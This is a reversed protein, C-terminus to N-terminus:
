DAFAPPRLYGGIVESLLTAFGIPTRDELYPGIAQLGIPLGGRTLGVPFATAPQGAFSAVAPYVSLLFYDVQHSGVDITHRITARLPPFPAPGHTFAPCLTVPALLLDWDRFFARYSARTREREAHLVILDGAGARSGQACALSYVDGKEEFGRARAERDAESLRASMLAYMMQCFLIQHAGLDALREPCATGVRAGAATLAAIVGGQAAQVEDDIPLWPQPPLVAVRFDALRAHRAPPIHLRWAVDEGVDPGAVVDLALELDRPDRALPGQVGMAMAPNPAPPMPFQGSRPLATDSPRHAYVGSFAAPLRLSGAFDSGFELPSLGAAIAAAGGGSSGGPTRALDWPNNTRGFIPNWSQYDTLM